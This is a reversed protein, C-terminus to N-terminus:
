DSGTLGSVYEDFAEQAEQRVLKDPANNLSGQLVKWNAFKYFEEIINM